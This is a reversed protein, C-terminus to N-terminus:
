AKPLVLSISDLLKEHRGKLETIAAILEERRRKEDPTEENKVGDARPPNSELAMDIDSSVLNLVANATNQLDVFTNQM